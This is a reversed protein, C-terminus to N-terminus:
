HKVQFRCPMLAGFLNEKVDAENIAYSPNKLGHSALYDEAEKRLFYGKYVSVPPDCM